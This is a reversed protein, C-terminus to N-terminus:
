VQENQSLRSDAPALEPAPDTLGMDQQLGGLLLRYGGDLERELRDLSLSSFLQPFSFKMTAAQILEAAYEPTAVKFEGSANGEEIIERFVARELQLGYNHLKPREKAVIHAMEVIKPDKELRRFTIRLASFLCVRLREAASEPGERVRLSLEDVTEVAAAHCIAEAIDLKGSFYRYLNGPSMGCDEAVEAM